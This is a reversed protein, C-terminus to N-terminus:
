PVEPEKALVRGVSPDEIRQLEAVVIDVADNWAEEVSVVYLKRIAFVLNAMALLASVFVLYGSVHAKALHLAECIAVLTWSFGTSVSLFIFIGCQHELQAQRIAFRKGLEINPWEYATLMLRRYLSWEERRKLTCNICTELSLTNAAFIAFLLVDHWPAFLTIGVLGIIIAPVFVLLHFVFKLWPWKEFKVARKRRPNSVSLDPHRSSSGERRRM